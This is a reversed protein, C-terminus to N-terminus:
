EAKEAKAKMAAAKVGAVGKQQAPEEAPADKGAVPFAQSLSSEGTKVSSVLGRLTALKELGIDDLGTVELAAFVRAESVGKGALFRMAGSRRHELTELTGVAVKKADEYASNWIAKPIGALIANRAAISAAANSTVTIMDTSYRKGFKNTIRRSVEKSVVTVRELDMFIGQAVVVDGETDLVRTLVRCNGWASMVIEAMRISPGEINVTKGERDTRPLAYLCEEAVDENMTALDRVERQFRSISRPYTKAIEIATQLESKTITALATNSVQEVMEFGREQGREQGQEQENM